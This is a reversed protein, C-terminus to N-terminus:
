PKPYVFILPAINTSDVYAADLDFPPPEVFKPGLNNAVFSSVAFV